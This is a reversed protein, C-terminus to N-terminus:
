EIAYDTLTQADDSMKFQTKTRRLEVVVSLPRSFGVAFTLLKCERTKCKM